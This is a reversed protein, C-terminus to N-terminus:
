KLNEVLAYGKRVMSESITLSTSTMGPELSVANRATVWPGQEAPLNDAHLDTTYGYLDSMKTSKFLHLTMM